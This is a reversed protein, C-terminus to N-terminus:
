KMKLSDMDCLTVSGDKIAKEVAHKYCLDYRGNLNFWSYLYKSTTRSYDWLQSVYFTGDVKGAVVSQYSQFYKNGNDLTIEFQNPVANGRRSLLNRVM